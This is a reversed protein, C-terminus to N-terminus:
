EDSGIQKPGVSASVTPERDIWGNQCKPINTCPECNPMSGEGKCVPCREINMLTVLDYIVSHLHQNEAALESDNLAMAEDWGALFDHWPDPKSPELGLLKHASQEEYMKRHADAAEYRKGRCIDDVQGLIRYGRENTTM